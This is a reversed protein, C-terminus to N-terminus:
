SPIKKKKKPKEESADDTVSGVAEEKDGSAQAYFLDKNISGDDIEAALEKRASLSSDQASSPVATSAVVEPQQHQTVKQILDEQEKQSEENPGPSM